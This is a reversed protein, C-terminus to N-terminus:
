TKSDFDGTILLLFKSLLTYCQYGARLEGGLQVVPSTPFTPAVHRLDTSDFAPAPVTVTCCLLRWLPRCVSLCVSLCVCSENIIHNIIVAVKTRGQATESICHSLTSFRWNTGAGTEYILRARPSGKRIEPHVHCKCFSCDEPEGDNLFDNGLRGDPTHVQTANPRDTHERDTYRSEDAGAARTVNTQENEYYLVVTHRASPRVSLCIQELLVLAQV